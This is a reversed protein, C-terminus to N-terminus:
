FGSVKILWGHQNDCGLVSKASADIRVFQGTLTAPIKAKVKHFTSTSEVTFNLPNKKASLKITTPDVFASVKFFFDSEPAVQINDSSNYETLNFDTFRPKKCEQEKDPEYAFVNISALLTIILLASKAIINKKM